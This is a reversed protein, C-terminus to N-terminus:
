LVSKKYQYYLIGATQKCTEGKLALPKFWIINKRLRLNLNSLCIELNEIAIVLM